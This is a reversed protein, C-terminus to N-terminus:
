DLIEIKERSWAHESKTIITYMGFHLNSLDLQVLGGQVNEQDFVVRGSLDMVQIHHLDNMSLHFQISGTSPNPFVNLNKVEFVNNVKEVAVIIQDNELDIEDGTAAVGGNSFLGIELSDGEFDPNIMFEITCLTGNGTVNRKDLRTGSIMLLANELDPRDYNMFETDQEDDIWDDAWLEEENGGLEEDDIWDDAFFDDSEEDEDGGWEDIVSEESEDDLWSDNWSVVANTIDVQAEDFGIEFGIGYMQLPTIDDGAIVDISVSEGPIIDGEVVLSLEAGEASTKYQRFHSYAFNQDIADLDKSTVIGDGNCDAHRNNTSDAQFTSWETSGHGIWNNSISDRRPGQRGYNLGIQLLDYHNAELDNNADGPWVCTFLCRASLVNGVSVDKCKTSICGSDNSITLCVAYYGTDEYTHAPHQAVSMNEDGFDWEYALSEGLANNNFKAFADLVDVYYAFDAFCSNSVDGVAVIECHTEQCGVSNFVTYCVEYYGSTRYPHSPNKGFSPASDDGFDWYRNTVDGLSEDSFKVVNNTEPFYSFSADCIAEEAGVTDLLVITKTTSNFCGVATDVVTLTVDYYGEEAYGHPFTTSSEVNAGDGLEWFAVEYQGKSTNEFQILQAGMSYYTFDAQCSQEENIDKGAVIEERYSHICGNATDIVTLSVYYYGKEAYTKTVSIEKSFTNDGFDWFVESFSGTAEATFIV